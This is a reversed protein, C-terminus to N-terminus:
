EIYIKVGDIEQGIIGAYGNDFDGADYRSVFPLWKNSKRLHVAYKIKKGTDTKMMLGDIPKNFLGAYDERNKVEPLWKGGKYHVKYFINGKTLRAYIACVDHGFLGAYDTLDKVEPLWKNQVDDWTQYYVSIKEEAPKVPPKVPDPTPAPNVPKENKKKLGGKKVIVEVLANASKEAFDETLIIPTDTTSDMFGDEILVAPMNTERLVHFDAQALPQSRNGKLGTYKILSDYIAKQWDLTEKDVGPYVFASIGGGSGGGIGANHHISLYFDAGWKNAKNTRTTLSIDTKGTPDDVRLLEYGEYSKLKSIVKGAIRSNLTWERTEKPDISKLCRKGSTYLGHGPDIVIKFM